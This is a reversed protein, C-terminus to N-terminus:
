GGGFAISKIYNEKAYQTTLYKDRFHLFLVSLGIQENAFSSAEKGARVPM